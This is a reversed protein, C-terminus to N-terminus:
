CYSHIIDKALTKLEEIYKKEAAIKDSITQLYTEKETFIKILQQQIELPPIPIKFEKLKKKTSNPIGIGTKLKNLKNCYYEM